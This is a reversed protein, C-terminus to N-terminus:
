KGFRQFFDVVVVIPALMALMIVYFLRKVYAIFLILSQGVLIAYMIMNQIKIGEGEIAYVLGPIFKQEYVNDKFYTALNPLFSQQLNGGIKSTKLIILDDYLATWYFPINKESRADRDYFYLDAISNVGSSIVFRGSYQQAWVKSEDNMTKSNEFSIPHTNTPSIAIFNAYKSLVDTHTGFTFSLDSEAIGQYWKTASGADGTGYKIAFIRNARINKLDEISANSEDAEAAWAILAGIIQNRATARRPDSHLPALINGNIGFYELNKYQMMTGVGFDTTVGALRVLTSAITPNENIITSIKVGSSDKYMGEYVTDGVTEILNSVGESVAINSKDIDAFQSTVMKSAVIILQENLYFVFSIAYHICFLTVFGVLWDVLAQKYKAKESALTSIALKIATILVLMGFFSSALALITSYLSKLLPKISENGVFSAGDPNIFNVDLLPVANFVIKDAWPFDSSGTLLQFIMGLIWELLQGVAYILRALLALLTSGNVAANLGDSSVPNKTAYEENIAAFATTNTFVLVVILIIVTLLIRKVKTLKM